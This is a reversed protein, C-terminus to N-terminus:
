LEEAGLLDSKGSRHVDNNQTVPTNKPHNTALDTQACYQEFDTLGLSFSQPNDMHLTSTESCSHDGIEFEGIISM